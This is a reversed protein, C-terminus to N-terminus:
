NETLKKQYLNYTLQSLIQEGVKAFGQKEYYSCLKPNNAACDLRLFDYNNERAVNEIQELINEGMRQGNYKESVVLSHVYKAKDDQERWYLQDEELIRVMGIRNEAHDEIFFFENNAIGKEVWSVKEPPPNKWYQWHDVNKKAIKKAAAKFFDLVEPLEEPKILIFKLNMFATLPNKTCRNYINAVANSNM